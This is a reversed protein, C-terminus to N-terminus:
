ERADPVHPQDGKKTGRGPSRLPRAALAQKLLIEARARSADDLLPNSLARRLGDMAVEPREIVDREVNAFFADANVGSTGAHRPKVLIEKTEGSKNSEREPFINDTRAKTIETVQQNKPCVTPAVDNTEPAFVEGTEGDIMDTQGIPLSDSHSEPVPAPAISSAARLTFGEELRQAKWAGDAFRMDADAATYVVRLRASRGIREKILYGWRVLDNVTASFVSYNAGAKMALAGFAVFCGASSREISLADHLAIVTLAVLHRDERRPDLVIRPPVPGYAPKV